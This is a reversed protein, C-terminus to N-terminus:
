KLEEYKGQCFNPGKLDMKLSKGGQYGKFIESSEQEKGLFIQDVKGTSISQKNVQSLVNTPTVSGRNLTIVM